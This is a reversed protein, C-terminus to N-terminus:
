RGIRFNDPIQKMEYEDETGKLFERMAKHEEELNAERRSISRARMDRLEFQRDLIITTVTITAFLTVTLPIGATLMGTREDFRKMRRWWFTFLPFSQARKFLDFKIGLM